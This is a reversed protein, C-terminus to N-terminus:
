NPFLSDFVLHSDFKVSRSALERAIAWKQQRRIMRLEELETENKKHDERMRMLDFETVLASPLSSQTDDDSNRMQPLSPKASDSAAPERLAIQHPTHDRLDPSPVQLSALIALGILGAVGAVAVTVNFKRRQQIRSRRASVVAQTLADTNISVPRDTMRLQDAITEEFPDTM